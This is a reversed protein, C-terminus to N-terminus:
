TTQGEPVVASKGGMIVQKEKVRRLVASILDVAQRIHEPIQPKINEDKNM